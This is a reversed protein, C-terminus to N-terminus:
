NWEDPDYDELPNGRDEEDFDENGEDGFADADYEELCPGRGDEEDLNTYAEDGGDDGEGDDGEDEDDPGDVEDFLKPREDFVVNDEDRRDWTHM